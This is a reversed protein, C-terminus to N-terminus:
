PDTKIPFGIACYFILNYNTYWICKIFKSVPTHTYKHIHTVQETTDSQSGLSQLGDPELRQGHSEGPLFVPTPHWKRRWPDEQGLSQVRTEPM